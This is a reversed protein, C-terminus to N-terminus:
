ISFLRKMWKLKGRYPAYRIPPDPWISKSIVARNQSFCELSYRGHYHGMGSEGLGGFPLEAHALHMLVENRILAGSRSMKKLVKWNKGEPGFYYLALPASRHATFSSMDKDDSFQLIPLVPGFIEEQMSSHSLENLELVVPPFYNQERNREAPTWASSHESLQNMRNFAQANILHAYDDGLADFQKTFEEKLQAVFDDYLSEHVWLHDPAVCTQGANMLKGWVIRKAATKWKAKRDIICPCKGGLELTISSLHKAAASMIHKGVQTSGTFFIHDWPKELLVKSVNVDGEVVSVEEVKFYKGILKNILGSTYPLLESPKLVATCGAALAGALPPFILYYPYNWPAIILAVGKPQPIVEADSWFHILQNSGKREAQNWTHLQNLLHDIEQLCPGIEAIFTEFASRHLDQHLADQLESENEQILRKLRKLADWRWKLDRTSGTEFFQLQRDYISDISANM